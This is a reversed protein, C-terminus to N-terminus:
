GGIALTKASCISKTRSFEQCLNPGKAAVFGGASITGRRALAGGVNFMIPARGLNMVCRREGETVIDDRAIIWGGGDGRQQDGFRDRNEADAAEGGSQEIDAHARAWEARVADSDGRGGHHEGDEGTELAAEGAADRVDSRQPAQ